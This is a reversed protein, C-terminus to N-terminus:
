PSLLARLVPQTLLANDTQGLNTLIAVALHEDPVFGTFTSFGATGGNAAYLQHGFDRAGALGGQLYAPRVRGPNDRGAYTPTGDALKGPQLYRRMWAPKLFTGRMLAEDWALLDAADGVLYGAGDVQRLNWFMANEVRDDVLTYGTAMNRLIPEFRYPRATKMGAPRLLRERVFADFRQGSVKEVVRALLVYGSNDYQAKTGPPFEFPRTLGYDACWPAGVDLRSAYVIYDNASTCDATGSTHVLLEAITVAPKAKWAPLYTAVPDDLRLKGDQALLFIGMATFQKTLSGYQYLTAVNAPVEDGVNRMGYARAFVTKGDRAVAIVVSPIGRALADHAAADLRAIRGPALEQAAAPAMAGLLLALLMLYKM